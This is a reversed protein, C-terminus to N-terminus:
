RGEASDEATRGKRLKEEAFRIMSWRSAGEVFHSAKGRGGLGRDRKKEEEEEGAQGRRTVGPIAKARVRSIVGHIYMQERLIQVCINIRLQVVYLFKSYCASVVCM